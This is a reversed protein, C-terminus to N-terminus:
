TCKVRLTHRHVCVGHAALLSFKTLTEALSNGMLVTQPIEGEPSFLTIFSTPLILFLLSVCVLSSSTPLIRAERRHRRSGATDPLGPRSGGRIEAQSAASVDGRTAHLLAM